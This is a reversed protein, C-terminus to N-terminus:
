WLPTTKFLLEDYQTLQHSTAIQLFVEIFLRHFSLHVDLSHSLHRPLDRMRKNTEVSLVNNM